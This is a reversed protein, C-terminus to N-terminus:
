YGKAEWYLNVVTDDVYYTFAQTTKTDKNVAYGKLTTSVYTTTILVNYDTNAFALPMTITGTAPNTDVWGGQEIWGDSYKKYWSQNNTAIWSEVIYADATHTNFDYGNQNFVFTTIETIAGSEITVSGIPVDLFEDDSTGNYKIAKLPEVSTDLWIDGTIMTPRATQKYITNSLTYATGDTKTFINYTGDSSGTMDITDLSSITTIEGKYNSTVLDPYSGGVKITVIMSSYSLLDGVGSTTNGSKVCFRASTGEIKENLTSVETDLQEKRLAHNASTATAVEFTQTSDGEVTAKTNIADKLTSFNLNVDEAKAKTGPVFEILTINNAM